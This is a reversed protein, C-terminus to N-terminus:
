LPYTPGTTTPLHPVPSPFAIMGGTVDKMEDITLQRTEKADIRSATQHLNSTTPKKM